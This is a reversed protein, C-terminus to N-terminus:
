HTASSSDRRRALEGGIRGLRGEWARGQDAIWRATAELTAPRVRHRAERGVREVETLGAARLLDLHKAVAQRSIALDDALETATADGREGVLGLIRRRTPDGLADLV